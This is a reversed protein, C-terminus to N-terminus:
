LYSLSTSLTRNPPQEVIPEGRSYVESFYCTFSDDRIDDRPPISFRKEFLRRLEKVAPRNM